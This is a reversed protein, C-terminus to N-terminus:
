LLTVDLQEVRVGDHSWTLHEAGNGPTEAVVDVLAGDVFRLAAEEDAAFAETVMGSAVLRGVYQRHDDAEGRHPVFAGGVLGLGAEMRTSADDLVIDFWCMAGASTGCMVIGRRAGEVLLEGIGSLRWAAMLGIPDGGGVYVLHQSALIEATEDAGDGVRIRSPIGGLETFTTEFTRYYSDSDGSATGIFCVRPEAVGTLGVVFRDIATAHGHTSFGGGGLVVIQM